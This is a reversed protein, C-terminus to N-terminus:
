AFGFLAGGHTFEDVCREATINRIGSTDSLGHIRLTAHENQVSGEQLSVHITSINM